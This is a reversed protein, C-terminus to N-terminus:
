DVRMLLLVISSLEAASAKKFAGHKAYSYGLTYCNDRIQILPSGDPLPPLIEPLADYDPRRRESGFNASRGFSM